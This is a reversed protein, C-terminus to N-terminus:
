IFTKKKLVGRSNVLDKMTCELHVDNLLRKLLSVMIDLRAKIDLLFYM